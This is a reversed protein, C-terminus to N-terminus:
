GADCFGGAASKLRTKSVPSRGTDGPYARVWDSYFKTTNHEGTGGEMSYRIALPQNKLGKTTKMTAVPQSNLFWTIRSKRVEAALLPGMSSWGKITKSRKWYRGDRALGYTVTNSHAKWSGLVIADTDCADGTVGNPLLEVKITYDQARKELNTWRVRTEWRGYRMANNRLTARTTGSDDTGARGNISSFLALGGNHTAARGTGDTFPVWYGRKSSGDKPPSNYDEGWEWGYDFVPRYWGFRGRATQKPPRGPGNGGTQPPLKEPFRYAVPNSGAPQVQLTLPFSQRWGIRNRGTYIREQRVQYRVNGAAQEEVPFYGFGEGDVQTTGITQWREGSVQRQLTLTRGKFIPLNQLGTIGVRIPTTDVVVTFREGAVPHIANAEGPRQASETAWISLEQPPADMERGVTRWGGAGAVRYTIGFMSPAPAVLRFSGNKKTRGRAGPVTGWNDGPRGMHFQVHIKRKGKAPLKGTLTLAQGAVYKKAPTVKLTGKPKARTQAQAEARDDPGAQAPTLHYSALGALVLALVSLLAFLRNRTKM